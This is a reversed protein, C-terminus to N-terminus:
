SKRTRSTPRSRSRRVSGCKRGCPSRSAPSADRRCTSSSGRHRREGRAGRLGSMAESVGKARITATLIETDSDWRYEVDAPTETAPEIRVIINM